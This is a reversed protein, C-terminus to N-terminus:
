DNHDFGGGLMSVIGREKMQRKVEELLVTDDIIRFEPIGLAAGTHELYHILVDYYDGKAEHESAIKPIIREHLERLSISGSDTDAGIFGLLEEYAQRETMTRRLYYYEGLYGYVFRKADYYGLDMNFCSQEPSFNLTGGLKRIPEIYTVSVGKPPRVRKERGIGGKLRVAIIDKYGREILPTIPLSDSVGGDTFRKGGLPENKFAPFYASALLMDCIQDEPLDRVDVVVEKKDTLSYTVICFDVDSNKVAETDIFEHLLNKLPTVDFGGGRIIGVAKRILPYIERVKIEGDYVRGMAEDSVDMVQSFKINRWLEEGRELCRMSMMAGNLAGVSTGSVANYKLGEEALARWVGIEYGGKAGGGGLALAYTLSPDFKKNTKKM